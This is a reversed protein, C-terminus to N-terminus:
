TKLQNLKEQLGLVQGSMNQLNSYWISATLDDVAGEFPLITDNGSILAVLHTSVKRVDAILTTQIKLPLQPVANQEISKRLIDRNRSLNILTEEFSIDGRDLPYGQEIAKRKAAAQAEDTFTNVLDWLIEPNTRKSEVPSSQEDM